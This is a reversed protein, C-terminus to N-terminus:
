GVIILCGSCMVMIQDLVGSLSLPPPDVVIVLDTDVLLNKVRAMSAPVSSSIQMATHIEHWSMYSVDDKLAQYSKHYIGSTSYVVTIKEQDYNNCLLKIAPYIDWECPVKLAFGFMRHFQMNSLSQNEERFGRSSILYKRLVNSLLDTVENQSELNKDM